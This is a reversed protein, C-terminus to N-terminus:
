PRSLKNVARMVKEKDGIGKGRLIQYIRQRTVRFEKKLERLPVGALWQQYLKENRETKPQSMEGDDYGVEELNDLTIELYGKVTDIGGAKCEM